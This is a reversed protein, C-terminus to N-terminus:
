RDLGLRGVVARALEAEDFCDLLLTHKVDLDAKGRM